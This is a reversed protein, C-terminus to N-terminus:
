EQLGGGRFKEWRCIKNKELGAKINIEVGDRCNQWHASDGTKGHWLKSRFSSYQSANQGPPMFPKKYV